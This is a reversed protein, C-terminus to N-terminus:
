TEPGLWLGVVYLIEMLLAFVEDGTTVEVPDPTRLDHHRDPTACGACLVVLLALGLRRM